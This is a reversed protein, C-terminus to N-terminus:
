NSEFTFLTKIYKRLTFVNSGVNVFCQGIRALSSENKCGRDLHFIAHACIQFPYKM